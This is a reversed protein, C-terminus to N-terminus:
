MGREAPGPGAWLGARQPSHPGPRGRERKTGAPRASPSSGGGDGGRCRGRRLQARLGARPPSPAAGPSGSSEQGSVGVRHRRPPEWGRAGGPGDTRAGDGDNGEGARQRLPPVAASQGKRPVSGGPCLSDRDGRLPQWYGEHKGLGLWFCAFFPLAQLWLQPFFCCFATSVVTYSTWVPMWIPCLIQFVIGKKEGEREM